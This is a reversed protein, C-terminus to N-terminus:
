RRFFSQEVRTDDQAFRLVRCRQCCRLHTVSNKGYASDGDSGVRKDNRVLTTRQHPVQQGGAACVGGFKGWILVRGLLAAGTEVVMFVIDCGSGWFCSGVVFLDASRGM